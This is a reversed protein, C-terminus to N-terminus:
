SAEEAMRRTQGAFGAWRTWHLSVPLVHNPDVFAKPFDNPVFFRYHRLPNGGGAADWLAPEPQRM